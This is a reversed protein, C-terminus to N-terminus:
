KGGVYVHEIRGEIEGTLGYVVHSLVYQGENVFIEVLNNDAFIDLEYRGGLPPTSGMMRYGKIGDYVKSRDAWVADDKVWIHYGGIDLKEGERLKTKLRCPKKRCVPWVEQLNQRGRCVPEKYIEKGFYRDVEPHVRFFIHGNQVEVVRPLCMMGNWPKEADDEAAKPMRMWAIMVRRGDKDVNTQPAYLDMGYDVLRIGRAVTQEGFSERKELAKPLTSEGPICLKCVSPDFEALACVAHHQYEMGDEAVFMPSGIFVYRGNVRFLDPCELIKGFKRNRYQNVYEWKRGDKSRYFLVRGTKGEYTSGLAMYYDDGDRWVKPDRTHTRDAIEDESAVPIIMEKDKWNDFCYGDSSVIMAQSTEYRDKLAVHINEGDTELYRVASYYLYLEGDKEIASGSFVGNQDYAKTPFLAIGLHEWRVLDESVAHGWHMTGWVAAYPFHQYFLHYKGKYYIFGNPDNMWNGPARLHLIDRKM